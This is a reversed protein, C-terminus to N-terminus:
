GRFFYKRRRRFWVLGGAGAVLLVVSSPEPIADVTLNDMAFYTPTGSDTSSLDFRLAKVDTGLASLDVWTWDSVVQGSVGTYDALNVSVTQDIEAGLSDYGVVTLSFVDNSALNFARAFSDGNLLSDAAYATNNFHFGMVETAVPLVVSNGGGWPEYFVAYSGTGSADSGSGYVAYQNGFGGVSPNNVSSFTMGDWSSFGGGWDTRNRVFQVGKSTWSVDGFGASMDYDNQGTTWLEDFDVIVEAGALAAFSLAAALMIKKM